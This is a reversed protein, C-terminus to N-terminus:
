RRVVGRAALEKGENTVIRGRLRPCGKEIRAAANGAGFNWRTLERLYLRPLVLRGKYQTGL